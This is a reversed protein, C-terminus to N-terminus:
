KKRGAKVRENETLYQKRLRVSTPTIELYEDENMVELGREISLILPPTLHIAADAGSSRM